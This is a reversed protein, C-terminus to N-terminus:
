SAKHAAVVVRDATLHDPSCAFLLVLPTTGTNELQHVTQPAISFTAAAEVRQSHRAAPSEDAPWTHILGAGALVFYIEDGHRHYHPAITQAPALEAVHWSWGSTELVKAIPIGVTSDKVAQDHLLQLANVIRLRNDSEDTITMHM